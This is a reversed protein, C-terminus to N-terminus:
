EGAAETKRSKGKREKIQERLLEAQLKQLEAEEQRARAAAAVHANDIAFKKARADKRYGILWQAHPCGEGAFYDRGRKDFLRPHGKCPERLSAPMKEFERAHQQTGSLIPCQGLEIFGKAHWNGRNRRETEAKRQDGDAYLSLAHVNGDKDIFREVRGQPRRELRTEPGDDGEVMFSSQTQQIRKDVQTAPNRGYNKGM